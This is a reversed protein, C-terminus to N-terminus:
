YRSATVLEVRCASRMATDGVWCAFVSAMQAPVPAAVATVTLEPMGPPTDMAVITLLAASSLEFLPAGDPETILPAVMLTVNWQMAPAATVLLVLLPPPGNSGPESETVTLM